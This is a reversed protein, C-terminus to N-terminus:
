NERVRTLSNVRTEYAVAFPIILASNGPLVMAASVDVQMCHTTLWRLSPLPAPAPTIVVHDPDLVYGSGNTAGTYPDVSGNFCIRILHSVYDIPNLGGGVFDRDAVHFYVKVFLGIMDKSSHGIGAEYSDTPMLSINIQPPSQIEDHDLLPGVHVGGGSTVFYATIDADALFDRRLGEMVRTEISRTIAM